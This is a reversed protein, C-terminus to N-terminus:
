ADCGPSRSSCVAPSPATSSRLGGTCLTCCFCHPSSCHLQPTSSCPSRRATQYRHCLAPHGTKFIAMPFSLASGVNVPLEAWCTVGRAGPTEDTNVLNFDWTHMKLELCCQMVLPSQFSTSNKGGTTDELPSIPFILYVPFCLVADFLHGGWPSCLYRRIM